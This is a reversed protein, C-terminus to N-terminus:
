REIIADSFAAAIQDGWGERVNLAIAYPLFRNMLEAKQEPTNLRELQDQEVRRLFERFGALQTIVAQGPATPARMIVFAISNFLVAMLLALVFGHAGPLAFYYILAGPGIFFLLPLLASTVRQRLNPRIPKSTYFGGIVLGAISTFMFLWFALFLSPQDKIFMATILAWALTLAMGIGAFKLNQRFYVGQLNQRFSGQTADILSKILPANGPDITGQSKVDTSVLSGLDDQTSRLQAARLLDPQGVKATHTALYPDVPLEVNLLAKIVAAEEPMVAIKANLLQVDYAGGRPQVSIVGKVVLQTLIAALTTGDSGGTTIYRAMGPSVGAPPQYQPTVPGIRPDRGVRLWAISYFLLLMGPFVLMGFDGGTLGFKPVAIWTIMLSSPVSRMRVASFQSYGICDPTAPSLLQYARFAFFLLVSM